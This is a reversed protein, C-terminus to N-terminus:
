KGLLPIDIKVIFLCSAHLSCFMYIEKYSPLTSSKVSHMLSFHLPYKGSKNCFVSVLADKTICHVSNRGVLVFTNSLFVIELWPYLQVVNNKSSFNMFM